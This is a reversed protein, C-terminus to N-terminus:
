GGCEEGKAVLAMPEAHLNQSIFLFISFKQPFQKCVRKEHRFKSVHASSAFFASPAREM